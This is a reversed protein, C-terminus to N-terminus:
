FFSKRSETTLSQSTTRDGKKINGKKLKRSFNVSLKKVEYSCSEENKTNNPSVMTLLESYKGNKSKHLWLLVIANLLFNQM